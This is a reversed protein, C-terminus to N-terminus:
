SELTIRRPGGKSTVQELAGLLQEMEYPKGLVLTPGSSHLADLNEQGTYGSSVVVPLGPWLERLALTTELGDVVPMMMDMVVADVPCDAAGQSQLWELTARGDPLVEVEIGRRQLARALFTRIPEEDDVLLVRLEQTAEVDSSRGPYLRKLSPGGVPFRIVFSTGYEPSSELEITGARKRVIGYVVALGLGTGAGSGKTTVFPEFIREQISEPIGPGGDSVRLEVQSTESRNAVHITIPGGGAPEM